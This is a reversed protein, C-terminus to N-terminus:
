ASTLTRTTWTPACASSPRRPRRSPCSPRCFVGTTTVAYFFRGDASADRSAVAEWAADPDPDQAAKTMTTESAEPTVTM